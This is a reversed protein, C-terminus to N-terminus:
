CGEGYDRPEIHEKAESSSLEISVRYETRTCGMEQNVSSSLVEYQILLRIDGREFRRSFRNGTSTNGPVGELAALPLEVNTGQFNIWARDGELSVIVIPDRDESTRRIQRPLPDAFDTIPELFDNAPASPSGSTPAALTQGPTEQQRQALRSVVVISGAIFVVVAAV